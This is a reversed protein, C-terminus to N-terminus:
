GFIDQYGAINTKLLTSPDSTGFNGLGRLELQLYFVNGFIPNTNQNLATYTRGAVARIAFCCGNYELGSFYTQSFGRSLNYNWNGLIHWHNNLPWIFSFATQNLNRINDATVQGAPTVELVDGNRIFNYGFNFIHNTEPKYQFNLAMNEAYHNSSNWALNLNTNWNQNLFYKLQGVIPSTLSKPPVAGFGIDECALGNLGQCLTVRRNQFYFIEGISVNAKEEGTDPSLFRTTAAITLQNADGIRDIGTFRNTRFLQDINFIPATTDFIPINNQARFPAYLYFLRPELTQHYTKGLWQILRDLYLGADLDFIPLFRNIQHPMTPTQHDIEYSTASLQVTPTLYGIADILPWSIQPQINLRTAAPPVILEGPNKQRKFYVLESNFLYNLGYFAQPYTNSLTLQPLRAYQNNVISQNIPHLTEYGQFQGTFTWVANTYTIGAQQLLQNTLALISGNGFDQFWYDDSVYAYNINGSWHTNFRM